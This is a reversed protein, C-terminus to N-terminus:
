VVSSAGLLTSSGRHSSTEGGKQAGYGRRAQTQLSSSRANHTIWRSNHPVSRISCLCLCLCSGVFLVCSGDAMLWQGDSSLWWVV